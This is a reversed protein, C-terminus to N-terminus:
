AVGWPVLLCRDDQGVCKVQITKRGEGSKVEKAKSESVCYPM